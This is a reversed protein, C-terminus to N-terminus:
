STRHAVVVITGIVVEQDRRLDEEVEKLHERQAAEDHPL